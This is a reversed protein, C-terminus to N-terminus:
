KKYEYYFDDGTEFMDFESKLKPIIIKYPRSERNEWRKYIAWSCYDAIQSNKDSKSDHFYIYAPIKVNEKFYTKATKIILNRKDKTFISSLIVIARKVSNDKKFRRFIYGLLTQLVKKYLIDGKHKIKRSTSEEYLVPNTKNKQIVVSDIAIDESDKIFAFVEDRVKQKDESAHFYEIELGGKLLKYKLEELRDKKHPVRTSVATLIFYKTGSPTFDFNGSEDVFIFLCDSFM